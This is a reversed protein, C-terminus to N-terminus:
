AAKREGFDEAMRIRRWAAPHTYLLFEVLPHPRDDSLNMDALRKETSIQAEPKRSIRLAFLDAIAERRRSYTNIVPMSILDIISSAAMFIAMGALSAASPILEPAALQLAVFILYFAMFTKIAEAFFFRYNDRNAYHGLEHAVVTEIEGPTFGELLTDFLIIRKTQGMGAFMANAKKSKESEKAVLVKSVKVGARLAMDKLREIQKRDRFPELKYFFPFIAVPYVFDLFLYVALSFISAYIWWDAIMGILLYVIAMVPVFIIYGLLLGKTMDRTWAALSQNSLGYRHEIVFGSYFSLPLNCINLVTALLFATLLAQIFYIESLGMSVEAFYLATGSFIVALLVIISVISSVIENVIKIRTYIKALGRKERDYEYPYRIRKGQM